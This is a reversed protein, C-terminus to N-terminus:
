TGARGGRGGTGGGASAASAGPAPHVGLERLWGVLQESSALYAIRGLGVWAHAASCMPCHEGSTYVTAEAREAVDLHQAAWRALTFEPHTETVPSEDLGVGCGRFGDGRAGRDVGAVVADAV